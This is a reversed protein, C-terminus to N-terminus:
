ENMIVGKTNAEIRCRMCINDNSYTDHKKCKYSFAKLMRKYNKRTIKTDLIKIYTKNM